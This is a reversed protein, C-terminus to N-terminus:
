EKWDDLNDLEEDILKEWDEEGFEEEQNVNGEELTTGCFTCTSPPDRLEENIGAVSYEAGCDDCFVTYFTM